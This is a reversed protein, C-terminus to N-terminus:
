ARRLRVVADIGGGYAPRLEAEGGDARALRRVIPLGLGSGSTRTHGRWFRDFARECEEASLGPGHDVVHVEVWGNEASASVSATASVALANAVLNDV